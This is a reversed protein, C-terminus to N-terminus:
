NIACIVFGQYEVDDGRDEYSGNQCSPGAGDAATKTLILREGALNDGSPEIHDPDRVSMSIFNFGNGPALNLNQAAGWGRADFEDNPDDHNAGFSARAPDDFPCGDDRDTSWAPGYTSQDFPGGLNPCLSANGDYDGPHFFLDTSCLDGVALLPGATKPYGSATDCNPAGVAGMIRNLPQTGNGVDHYSAWSTSPSHRFLLDELPLQHIALNKYDGFGTILSGISGVTSRDTTWLTRRNWTWTDVNDDSSIVALTWGGGDTMMDCITTYPPDAGAGDPDIEWIGTAAPTASTEFYERCSTALAGGTWTLPSADTGLGDPTRCASSARSSVFFSCDQNQCRGRWAGLGKAGDSTPTINVINPPGMNWTTISMLHSETRRTIIEMGYSACMAAHAGQTGAVTPDDFGVV